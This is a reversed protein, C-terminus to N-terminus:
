QTPMAGSDRGDLPTTSPARRRAQALAWVFLTFAVFSYVFNLAIGFTPDIGLSRLEEAKGGDAGRMLEWASGVVGFVQTALLVITVVLAWRAGRATAIALVALAAAVAGFMVPASAKEHTAALAATIGAIVAGALWLAAAAHRLPPPLLRALVALVLISSRLSPVAARRMTPPGRPM